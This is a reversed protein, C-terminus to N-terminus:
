SIPKKEYLIGNEFVCDSSHLHFVSATYGGDGWIAVEADHNNQVAESFQDRYEGWLEFAKEKTIGFEDCLMRNGVSIQFAFDTIEETM